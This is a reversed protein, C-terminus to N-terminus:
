DVITVEKACDLIWGENFNIIGDKDLWEAAYVKNDSNVYLKRLTVCNKFQKQFKALAIAYFPNSRRMNVQKM